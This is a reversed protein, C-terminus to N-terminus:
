VPEVEIVKFNQEVGYRITIKEEKIATIKWKSKASCVVERERPISSIHQIVAGKPQKTKCVVLVSNAFVANKAFDIAIEKDTSWSSLGRTPILEGVKFKEMDKKEIIMGRYTIGKYKKSKDILYEVNDVHHKVETQTVNGRLEKSVDEGNSVKKMLKQYGGSWEKISSLMDEAKSESMKLDEKIFSIKEEDTYWRMINDEPFPPRLEKETQYEIKNPNKKAYPEHTRRVRDAADQINDNAAM